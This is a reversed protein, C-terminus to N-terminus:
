EATKWVHSVVHGVWNNTVIRTGQYGQISSSVFEFYDSIGGLCIVWHNTVFLEDMTQAAEIREEMTTASNYADIADEFEECHHRLGYNSGYKESYIMVAAALTEQGGYTTNMAREETESTNISIMEMIDGITTINMTVGIESFYTAALVYLDVDTVLSCVVIEFEFGDPYGAEALLEKAREPNYTYEAAVEDSQEWIYDTLSPTWLGPVNLDYDYQFYGTHIEELPLAMQLAARVRIDDFPAVDNRLTIGYPRGVEYVYTNYADEDMSATLQAIEATSLVASTHSLWEVQGALFQSLRTSSDDIEVLTVSDLYPLANGNREDTGYYNENKTLELTTGIETGTLIFPGTGYAYEWTQDCEDWEHSTIMLFCVMFDNMAIENHYEDKFQFIVTYDGDTTISDVMYLEAVWDNETEVPSTFGSGTGLVRDYTYKVDEAVLQRGNVPEKDQFYIDDRINVTLTGADEDFTWTDAIQGILQDYTVYSGDYANDSSLDITWLSEMWFSGYGYTTLMAPEYYNEIERWYMTLSGGYVPESETTESGTSENENELNPESSNEIDASTSEGDNSETQGDSQQTGGCAALSFVMALALLLALLKKMKM